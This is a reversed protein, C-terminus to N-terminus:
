SSILSLIHSNLTSSHYITVTTPTTTICIIIIIIIIIIKGKGYNLSQGGFARQYIKGDETRSFPMGYSELELVARPAERSIVTILVISIFIIIIIIIIIITM